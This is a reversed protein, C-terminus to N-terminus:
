RGAGLAGRRRRKKAKESKRRKKRLAILFESIALRQAAAWLGFGLSAIEVTAPVV